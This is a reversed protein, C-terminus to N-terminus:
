LRSRPRFPREQRSLRVASSRLVVDRCAAWHVERLPLLVMPPVLMRPLTVASPRIARGVGVQRWRRRRHPRSSGGSPTPHPPSAQRRQLLPPLSNEFRSHACMAPADDLHHAVPHQDLEGARHVRDFRRQLKLLLHRSALAASGSSRRMTSRMPMLRPSTMPSPDSM